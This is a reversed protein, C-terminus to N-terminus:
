RDSKQWLVSQKGAAGKLLGILLAIQGFVFYFPADLVMVSRGVIWKLVATVGICAFLLLAVRPLLYHRSAAAAAIAILAMCPSVWRLLKHSLFVFWYGAPAGIPWANGRLLGQAAGAAIRTKRRFEESVSAVGGEWGVARPEFLVRYGQRIISTPIVLDEVITDNPCRQFLRRRIAYMAGDAGAMSYLRSAKEQLTWEISYYIEESKRLEPTTDTLVVKGSVCGVQPDSELREILRKVADHQYLVNADSFVVVDEALTPVVDNLNCVKGCRQPKEILTISPLYKRACAVTRDTSGDSIVVIRLKGQPYDLALSNEIKKSIWSEENLASIVIAVSPYRDIPKVPNVKRFFVLFSLLIPYIIFPYVFWFIAVIACAEVWM